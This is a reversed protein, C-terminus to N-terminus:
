GRGESTLFLSCYLRTKAGAQNLLVVLWIQDPSIGGPRKREMRDRVPWGRSAIAGMGLAAQPDDLTNQDSSAGSADPEFM